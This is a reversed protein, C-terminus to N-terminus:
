FTNKTFAIPTVDEREGFRFELHAFLTQRIRSYLSEDNVHLNYIIEIESQDQNKKARNCGFRNYPKSSFIDSCQQWFRAIKTM